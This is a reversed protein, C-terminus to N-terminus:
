RRSNRSLKVALWSEFAVLLAILGAAFLFAQLFPKGNQHLLAAIGPGILFGLGVMMENIAVRKSAQEPDLMSHYVSFLFTGATFLGMLSAGVVYLTSSSASGFVILSFVGILGFFPIATTKRQWPGFLILALAGFGQALAFAFEVLGRMTTSIGEQTAIVPWYTAITLWGVLGIVVGMWGPIFLPPSKLNRELPTDSPVAAIDKRGPQFAAIVMAILVMMGAALYYNDTWSLVGAALGSIFPGFGFGLSWAFTYLSITTHLPRAADNSVGLM